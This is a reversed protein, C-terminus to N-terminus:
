DEHKCLLGKIWQDLLGTRDDTTMDEMPLLWCLVQTWHAEHSHRSYELFSHTSWGATPKMEAMCDCSHGALTM